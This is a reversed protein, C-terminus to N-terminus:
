LSSFSKIADQVAQYTAIVGTVIGFIAFVISLLNKMSFWNEKSHVVWMLAPYTFNALCGGIAGGVSLAPKASSLFIAMLLPLGNSVLLVITRKGTPLSNASNNSFFIQSWSCLVSQGVAPYAFSVVFFFAGRVVVILYDNAPFSKLINGDTATGFMLYGFVSPISVLLVCAICAYLTALNRRKPNPTYLSIIPLVVVPLAFTLSYISLSSFLSSDLKIMKITPNVGKGMTFTLGKYTISFFYFLIFAVTATSFYSLFRINRPITLAIPISLAYITIVTARPWMSNLNIGALQFWSLIMDGGIIIYALMASVLFLLSLISLTLSGYKGLTRFALDDYGVAGTERQLIIVMCTAIWSIFAIFIILVVSPIVGTNIFTNPVSLIGAGLLSNLLNMVTPLLAVYKTKDNGEEEESDQHVDEFDPIDNVEVSEVSVPLGDKGIQVGPLQSPETM